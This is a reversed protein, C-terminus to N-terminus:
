SGDVNKYRWETKCREIEDDIKTIDVKHKGNANSILHDKFRDHNIFVEQNCGEHDCAFKAGTAYREWLADNNARAKRRAVLEAACDRFKDQTLHHALYSNFSTKMYHLTASGSKGRRLKGTPKWEDLEVDLASPGTTNLRHYIFGSGDEDHAGLMDQHVVEPDTVQSIKSKLRSTLSKRPGRERRATGISVVIGVSNRGYAEKIESVGQGTPNNTYSFGGDTFVMYKTSGSKTPIKFEDFYWPAATAARAIEWIEFNQANGYNITRRPKESGGIGARSSRGTNSRTTQRTWSRPAGRLPHSARRAIHDYSRLLHLTEVPKDSMRMLSTVFRVSQSGSLWILCLPNCAYNM